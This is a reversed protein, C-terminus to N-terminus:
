ASSLATTVLFSAGQYCALYVYTALCPHDHTSYPVAHNEVSTHKGSAQVSMKSESQTRQQVPPPLPPWGQAPFSLQTPWPHWACASQPAVAGASQPAAPTYSVDSDAM